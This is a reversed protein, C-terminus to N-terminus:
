HLTDSSTFPQPEVPDVDLQGQIARESPIDDAHKGTSDTRWSWSERMDCSACKSAIIEDFDAIKVKLSVWVLPGVRAVDFHELAAALTTYTTRSHTQIGKTLDGLDMFTREVHFPVGAPAKMFELYREIDQRIDPRSLLSIRRNNM